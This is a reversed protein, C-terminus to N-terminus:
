LNQSLKHLRLAFGHFFAAAIQKKNRKKPKAAIEICIHTCCCFPTKLIQLCSVPTSLGYHYIQIM